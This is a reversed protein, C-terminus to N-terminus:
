WTALFRDVEERELLGLSHDVCGSCVAVARLLYVDRRTLNTHGCLTCRTRPDDTALARRQQAIETVCHECVAHDGVALMHAVEAARRGCTSCTIEEDDSVPRPQFTAEPPTIRDRLADVMHDAGRARARQRLQALAEGDGLLALGARAADALEPDADSAWRVLLNRATRTDRTAIALLLLAQWGRAETRERDINARHLQVDHVPGYREVAARRLHDETVQLGATLLPEPLVSAVVLAERGAAASYGTGPDKLRGALERARMQALQDLAGEFLGFRLGEDTTLDIATLLEVIPEAQGDRAAREALARAIIDIRERVAARPRALGGRSSRGPATVPLRDYSTVESRLAKVLWGVDGHEVRLRVLETFAPTHDPADGLLSKLTRVAEEVQGEELLACGLTWRAQTDEPDMALARHCAERARAIEGLQLYAMGIRAYVRPNDPREQLYQRLYLVANKYKGLHYATLGLHYRASARHHENEQLRVFVKHADALRGMKLCAVGLEHLLEPMQATEAGLQLARVIHYQSRELVRKEDGLAAARDALLRGLLAHPEWAGPELRCATEIERVAERVDGAREHLAGLGLHVEARDPALKLAEDLYRTAPDLRDLGVLAMGAVALATASSGDNLLVRRAETLARNFWVEEGGHFQAKSLACAAYELRTVLDDPAEALRKELRRLAWDLKQHHFLSASM